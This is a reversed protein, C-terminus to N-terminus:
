FTLSVHMHPTSELNELSDFDEPSSPIFIGANPKENIKPLRFLCLVKIGLVIGIRLGGMMQKLPIFWLIDLYIKSISGCYIYLFYMGNFNLVSTSFILLLIFQPLPFVIQQPYKLEHLSIFSM